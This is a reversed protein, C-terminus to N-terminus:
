RHEGSGGHEGGRGRMVRCARSLNPAKQSIIFHGAFTNLFCFCGSRMGSGPRSRKASRTIADQVNRLKRLLPTWGDTAVEASEAYVAPLL